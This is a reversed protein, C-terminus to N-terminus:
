GVVDRDEGLGGAEVRGRSDHIGQGGGGGAGELAWRFEARWKPSLMSLQKFRAMRVGLDGVPVLLVEPDFQLVQWLSVTILFSTFFSKRADETAQSCPIWHGFQEPPWWKNM